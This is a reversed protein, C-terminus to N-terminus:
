RVSPSTQPTRAAAIVGAEHPGLPVTAHRVPLAADAVDDDGRADRKARFRRRVVGTEEGL